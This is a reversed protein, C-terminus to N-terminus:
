VNTKQFHLYQKNMSKYIFSQCDIKKMFKDAEKQTIQRHKLADSILTESLYVHEM